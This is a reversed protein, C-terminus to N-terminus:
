YLFIDIIKNLTSTKISLVENLYAYTKESLTGEEQYNKITLGYKRYIDESECASGVAKSFNTFLYDRYLADENVGLLANLLYSLMGTRDKGQVCHMIMPYKSEDALLEFFSKISTENVSAKTEDGHKLMNQGDYYMPISYYNVDEGLPSSTLGSNEIEGDIDVNKRLDIDTKINLVERAEKIGNETVLPINTTVKDENLQGSRYLLGQKVIKNDLGVNGGVDRVNDVGELYINRPAYPTTKFSSPKSTFTNSPYTASVTWTYNTNVKLNYIDINQTDSEYVLPTENNEEYINVKYKQAKQVKWSFNVGIPNAYDELSAYAAYTGIEDYDEDLLYLAQHEQHIEVNNGLNKLTFTVSSPDNNCSTLVMLATLSLPLLSLKTKKM